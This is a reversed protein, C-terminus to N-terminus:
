RVEHSSSKLFSYDCLPPKTERTCMYNSVLAANSSSSSPRAKLPTSTQSAQAAAIDSSLQSNTATLTKIRSRLGNLEVEAATTAEVSAKKIAAASAAEM